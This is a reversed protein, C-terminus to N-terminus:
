ISLPNILAIFAIDISKIDSRNNLAIYSMNNSERERERQNGLNVRHNLPVDLKQSGLM